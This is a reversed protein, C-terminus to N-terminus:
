RHDARNRLHVQDHHHLHLDQHLLVLDHLLLLYMPELSLEVQRDVQLDTQLEWLLGQVELVQQM